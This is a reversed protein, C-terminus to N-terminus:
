KSGDVPQWGIPNSFDHIRGKNDSVGYVILFNNPIRPVGLCASVLSCCDRHSLWVRGYDREPMNASDKRNVGGFRICVVELGKKAYYRGLAEMLVKSAGYPSDPVPTNDPSLLSRKKWGHFSDAHVSSAVIIRPVGVERAARYVNCTMVYNDPSASGSQFNEKWDWALHIVASQGEFAVLLSKYDRVDVQPLDLAAIRFDKLGRRLVTGIVGSAGTIAIRRM